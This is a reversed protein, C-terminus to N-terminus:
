NSVSLKHANNFSEHLYKSVVLSEENIVGSQSLDRVIIRPLVIKRREYFNSTNVSSM